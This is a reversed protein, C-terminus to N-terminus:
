MGKSGTIFTRVEDPSSGSALMKECDIVKSVGDIMKQVLQVESFGLRQKNSIDFKADVATSHEGASGRPQLDFASCVQDLLEKDVQSGNELLQNFGPLKVMVSARLGTGLNSPCTGLFGLVESWMLKTGNAEACEQLANSLACFRAFVAPIDGGNNMSIIRCHDEENVWALASLNENHFIGRNAPWSRAAGAGTLLNRPSPIQFLFGQKLLFTTQEPSLSGLEYYTGALEGSLGAFTQKLVKEVEARDEDTTGCPLSYGSINRAARIRTSVVFENFMQQQQVTFILKSPDLDVPHKQTNADYGHWDKIIPYYLEKFVEWSEEDGATAGVGLHPTVVGTMIANSFTYGKSTQRDKLQGFLEPTLDKAMASKHAPSFTPLETFTLYKFDATDKFDGLYSGGYHLYSPNVLAPTSVAESSVSVPPPLEDVVVPAVVVEEKVAPAADTEGRVVLEELPTTEAHSPAAVVANTPVTADAPSSAAATSQKKKGFANGMDTFVGAM